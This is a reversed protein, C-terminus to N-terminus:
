FPFQDDDETAGLVEVAKQKLAELEEEPSAFIIEHAECVWDAFEEPSPLKGAAVYLEGCVKALVQLEISRGTADRGAGGEKAKEQAPAVGTIINWNGKREVEVNLTKGKVFYPFLEGKNVYYNEWEDNEKYGIRLSPGYKGQQETVNHVTITKTNM